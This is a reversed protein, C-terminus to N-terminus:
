VWCPPSHGEEQHIAALLELFEEFIECDKFEQRAKSAPPLGAWLRDRAKGICMSTGRFIVMSDVLRDMIGQMRKELKLEPLNLSGLRREPFAIKAVSSIRATSLSLDRIRASLEDAVYSRRADFEQMVNASTVLWV